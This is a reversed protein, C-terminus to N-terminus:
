DVLVCVVFFVHFNGLMCITLSIQCYTGAVNFYIPVKHTKRWHVIYLCMNQCSILTSWLFLLVDYQTISFVNSYLRPTVCFRPIFWSM